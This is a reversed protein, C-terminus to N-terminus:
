YYHYDHHNNNIIINFVTIIIIISNINIISNFYTSVLFDFFPGADKLWGLPDWFGLPPQAGIEKEFGMKLASSRANMRGAPAFANAKYIIILINTIYITVNVNLLLM